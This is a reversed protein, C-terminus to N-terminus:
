LARCDAGRYRLIRSVVAGEYARRQHLYRVNGKDIESPIRLAPLAVPRCRDATGIHMRAKVNGELIDTKCGGGSASRFRSLAGTLEDGRVAYTAKGAATALNRARDIKRM